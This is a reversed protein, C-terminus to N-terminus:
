MLFMKKCNVKFSGVSLNLWELPILNNILHLRNSLSNLGVKTRNSKATIFKTQRSTFVQNINLSCFEIVNFDMNYLKFLCIALKYKQFKEPTARKNITHIMEFSMMPDVQRNCIKLAKASTSLLKQKLTSKLSPLHWIESNYFLISYFNSTVLQLLEDKKFFRRILRIANLANMSRKITHSIQDSWQLKSDFIVGLVNISRKSTVMNGNISVNIPTTDVKHFLCLETKSENVKM